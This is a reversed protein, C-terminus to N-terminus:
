SPPQAPQPSEGAQELLRAADADNTGRRRYVEGSEFEAGTHFRATTTGGVITLHTAGRSKPKPPDGQAAPRRWEILVNHGVGSALPVTGRTFGEGFFDDRVLQDKQLVTGDRDHLEPELYPM